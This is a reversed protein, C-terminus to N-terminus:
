NILCRKLCYYTLYLFKVGGLMEKITTHTLNSQQVRLRTTDMHNHCFIPPFIMWVGSDCRALFPAILCMGPGLHEFSVVNNKLYSMKCKLLDQVCFISGNQSCFRRANKERCFILLSSKIPVLLSLMDKVLLNTICM